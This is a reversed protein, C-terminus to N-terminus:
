LGTMPIQQVVSVTTGTQSTSTGSLWARRVGTTAFGNQSSVTIRVPVNRQMAGAIRASRVAGQADLIVLSMDSMNLGPKAYLVLENPGGIKAICSPCTPWNPQPFTWPSAAATASRAHPIPLSDPFSATSATATGFETVVTNVLLLPMAPNQLV